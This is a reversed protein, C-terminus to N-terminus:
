SQDHFHDIPIKDRIVRHVLETRAKLLILILSTIPALMM